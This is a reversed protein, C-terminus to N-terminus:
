RVGQVGVQLTPTSTAKASAAAGGEATVTVDLKAAQKQAQYAQWFGTMFDLGGGIVAGFVGGEKQIRPRGNAPPALSKHLGAGVPGGFTKVVNAIEIVAPTLDRGVSAAIQDLSQTAQALQSQLSQQVERFTDQLGTGLDNDQMWQLQTRAMEAIASPDLQELVRLAAPNPVITRANGPYRAIAAQLKQISPILGVRALSEPTADIGAAGRLIKRQNKRSDTLLRILGEVGASALGANNLRESMVATLAIAQSPDAGKAVAARLVPAAVPAFQAVESHARKSTVSLINAALNANERLAPWAGMIADMSEVASAAETFTGAALKMSVSFDSLTQESAGFSQVQKYLADTVEKSSFGLRQNEQIISRIRDRYKNRDYPNAILSSIRILGTEVTETETIIKRMTAGLLFGVVVRKVDRFTKAAEQNARATRKMAATAKDTSASTREMTKGVQKIEKDVKATAQAVAEAVPKFQDKAIFSISVSEYYGM